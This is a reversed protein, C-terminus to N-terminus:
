NKDQPKSNTAQLKNLDDQWFLYGGFALFVFLSIYIPLVEFLIMAQTLYGVILALMLSMAIKSVKTHLKKKFFQWFFVVYLSAYSLFGIIGAQTLYDLFVNHARDFWAGFNGNGDYMDVDYHKYFIWNFNEPGWGTIPRQKFGDWAIGWIKFRDQLSEEQLSIDFVRSGPINKIVKTDQFSVGIGFIILGTLILAILPKRWSKKTVALYIMGVGIGAILGLFAGRTGTMFLFFLFVVMAASLVWTHWNKLKKKFGTILYSSFFLSFLLYTGVYAPNGISGKFRLNEQSFAPGIFRGFIKKLEPGMHKLGAGIGYLIMLVSAGVMTWFLKRWDEFNEFLVFLLFVFAYLFLIQLGGEGREFNSWFSFHPRYSFISVIQMSATFATFAQFLPRKFVEKIKKYYKESESGFLLGLLFLILSIGTISRFAVYKGVIFPFLTGVTVIVVTLPVLYLLFKSTKFFNLYM